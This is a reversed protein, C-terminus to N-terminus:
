YVIEWNRPIRNSFGPAYLWGFGAAHWEIVYNRGNDREEFWDSWDEEWTERIFLWEITV